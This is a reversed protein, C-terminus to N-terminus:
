GRGQGERKKELAASLYRSELLKTSTCPVTRAEPLINSLSPPAETGDSSKRQQLGWAQSWRSLWLGLCSEALPREERQIEHMEAVPKVFESTESLALYLEPLRPCTYPKLATTPFCVPVLLPSHFSFFFCILMWQPSPCLGELRQRQDQRRLGQNCDNM